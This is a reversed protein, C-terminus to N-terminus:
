LARYIIGNWHAVNSISIEEKNLHSNKLPLLSARNKWSKRCYNTSLTHLFNLQIVPNGEVITQEHSEPSQCQKTGQIQRGAQKKGERSWTKTKTKKKEGHEHCISTRMRPILDSGCLQLLVLDKSAVSPLSDFRCWELSM